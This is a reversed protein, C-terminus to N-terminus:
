EEDDKDKDKDKDEVVPEPEEEPKAEIVPLDGPVPLLGKEEAEM